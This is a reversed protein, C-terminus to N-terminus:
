PNDDAKERPLAYAPERALSLVMDDMLVKRVGCTYLIQLIELLRVTSIPKELDLAVQYTPFIKIARKIFGQTSRDDRSSFSLDIFEGDLGHGSVSPRLVAWQDTSFNSDPDAGHLGRISLVCLFLLLLPRMM